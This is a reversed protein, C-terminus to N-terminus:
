GNMKVKLGGGECRFRAPAAIPSNTGGLIQMAVYRSANTALVRRQVDAIQWTRGDHFEAWNHYADPTLIQDKECVYGGVGRAPIGNRRCLAVFLATYETCDGKGKELAHLAGRDRASLGSDQVHGAVWDFIARVRRSRDADPFAPALRQFAPADIEVLREPGLFLGAQIACDAPVDTLEVRAKIRLIKTSYPPLNTLAFHMVRNGRDDTLTECPPDTTGDVWRQTATEPHPAYTWFDAREIWNQRPNQVTFSYQVLRSSTGSVAGRAPLNTGDAGMAGAVLACSYLILRFHLM